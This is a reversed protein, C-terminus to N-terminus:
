KKHILGEKSMEFSFEFDDEGKVFNIKFSGDKQIEISKAAEIQRAENLDKVPLIM